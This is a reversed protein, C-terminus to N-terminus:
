GGGMVAVAHQEGRDGGLPHGREDEVPHRGRSPLREVWPPPEATCCRPSGTPCVAAGPRAARASWRWRRMWPFAEHCTGVRCPCSASVTLTSPVAPRGATM